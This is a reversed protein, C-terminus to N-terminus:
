KKPKFDVVQSLCGNDNNVYIGALGMAIEGGQADVSATLDLTGQCTPKGLCCSEGLVTCNAEAWTWKNSSYKLGMIQFQTGTELETFAYQLEDGGYPANVLSHVKFIDTANIEIVQTSIVARLGTGSYSMMEFYAFETGPDPFPYMPTSAGSWQWSYLPDSTSNQLNCAPLNNFNCCPFSSGACVAIFAFIFCINVSEM